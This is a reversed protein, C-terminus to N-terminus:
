TSYKVSQDSGGDPFGLVEKGKELKEEAKEVDKDTMSICEYRADRSLDELFRYIRYAENPIHNCARLNEKREAHRNSSYDHSTLIEEAYHIFSYFRVTVVWNKQSPYDDLIDVAFNENNRAFAANSMDSM